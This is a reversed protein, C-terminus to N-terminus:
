HACRRDDHRGLVPIGEARTVALATAIPGPDRAPRRLETRVTAPHLPRRRAAGTWFLVVVLSGVALLGIVTEM